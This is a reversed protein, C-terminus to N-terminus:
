LGDSDKLYLKFGHASAEFGLSKYFNHAPKRRKDSTLMIKYCGAEKAKNIIYDM